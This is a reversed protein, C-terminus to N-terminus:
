REREGESQIDREREWIETHTDRKREERDRHTYREKERLRQSNRVRKTSILM